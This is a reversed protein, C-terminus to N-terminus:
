GAICATGPSDYATFSIDSSFVLAVTKPTHVSLDAGKGPQSEVQIRGGHAEVLGRAIALGLGAGGTSRSRSKDGRYFREFLHPLIQLKSARAATACRSVFVRRDCVRALIDIRGGSPTHRLANSVLNSLVRGIRQVDMEVPDVNV